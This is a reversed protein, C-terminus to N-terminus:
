RAPNADPKFTIIVYEPNSLEWNGALMRCFTAVFRLSQDDSLEPHFFTCYVLTTKKGPMEPVPIRAPASWPGEIQKAQRFQIEHPHFFDSSTAMLYRRLAPVWMVSVQGYAERFIVKV